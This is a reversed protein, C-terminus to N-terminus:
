RPFALRSTVMLEVDRDRFRRGSFKWTARDVSADSANSGVIEGPMVVTITFADDGLGSTVNFATLRSEYRRMFNKMRSGAYGCFERLSAELTQFSKEEWAKVERQIAEDREDEDDIQM